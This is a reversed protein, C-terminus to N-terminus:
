DIEELVGDENIKSVTVWDGNQAEKLVIVHNDGGSVGLL